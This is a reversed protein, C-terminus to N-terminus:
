RLSHERFYSASSGCREENNCVTRSPVTWGVDLFTSIRPGNNVGNIPRAFYQRIIAIDIESAAAPDSGTDIPSKLVHLLCNDKLVVTKGMGREESVTGFQEVVITIIGPHHRNATVVPLL